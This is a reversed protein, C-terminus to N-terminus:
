SNLQKEEALLEEVKALVVEQIEIDLANGLLATECNEKIKELMAARRSVIKVNLPEEKM